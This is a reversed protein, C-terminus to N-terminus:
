DIRRTESLDRWKAISKRVKPNLFVCLIFVFTGRSANIIDIPRFFWEPENNCWASIPEFIWTAGMLFFLKFYMMARQRDDNGSHRISNTRKMEKRTKQSIKTIRYIAFAIFFINLLMMVLVLGHFFIDEVYVGTGHQFWCSPEGFGPYFHGSTLANDCVIVVISMLVPFLTSYIAYVRFRRNQSDFGSGTSKKLNRFTYFIDFCMVNLWFFSSIMFLYTVYGTIKCLITHMSHGVLSIVALGALGAMLTFSQCALNRGHLNKYEPTSLIAVFNLFLMVASILILVTILMQYPDEPHDDHCLFVANTNEGTDGICYESSTLNQSDNLFTLVGNSSLIYDDIGPSNYYVESEIHCDIDGDLQIQTENSIQKLNNETLVDEPCKRFCPKLDCECVFHKFGNTWTSVNKYLVGKIVLSGNELKSGTPLELDLGQECRESYVQVCATTSSLSAQHEQNAFARCLRWKAISKRIKPNLIVCLFFVLIGRSANIVDIPQFFWSPEENCWASIPEFLWTAGMLFFLKVYMLARQRDDNGAHRMSKTRRMERRTKRSFETIRYLAFAIFFFNLAMLFLIIGHFYLGEVLADTSDFWCSTKGFGPYFVGETFTNDCTILVVCLLFPCLTSYVSYIFFRQNHSDLRSRASKKLNRFTYFIDFCMINLWFFSSLLFLYTTYGIIKCLTQATRHITHGKISIAALGALGIMLTLSQCTLNRGHLNKFEPTLLIVISNLFLMVVSILILITILIKFPSNPPEFTDCILVGIKDEGLDGFCFENSNITESGNLFILEGKSTLIFLDGGSSNSFVDQLLDCGIDEDLLTIVSFLHSKNTEEALQIQTENSIPKLRNKRLVDEPCKRFCPKLDCECVFHVCASIPEFIWTAGMLFFLKFYMMARQMDDNGAHRTSNTRQMERKTNRSITTIRYVAFAIFFINVLMLVLVIGHFFIDEVYVDPGRQFWCTGNGFGPYFHGSTLSNDCVIVVVCLVFPCVSSYISYVKFRGNQSDFGYGTSKKLNRFTYFIDFCM